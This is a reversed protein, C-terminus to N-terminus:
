DRQLGVARDFARQATREDPQGIVICEAM